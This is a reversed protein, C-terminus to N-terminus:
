SRSSGSCNKYQSRYIMSQSLFGSRFLFGQVNGIGRGVRIGIGFAGGPVPSLPNPGGPTGNNFGQLTGTGLGATFGVTNPARAAAQITGREAAQITARTVGAVTRAAGQVARGTAVTAEAATGLVAPAAAVALPLAVVLASNVPQYDCLHAGCQDRSVPLFGFNPNPDFPGISAPLGIVENAISEPKLTFLPGENYSVQVSGSNDSANAVAANFSQAAAANAFDASSGFYFTTGQGAQLFPVNTNPVQALWGTVIEQLFMGTPDVNAVPNNRAYAYANVSQPDFANAVVPDVSLFTGAGPDYWRAQMYVLGTAAHKRHGAYYARYLNLGTAFYEKGFPTSLVHRVRAGDEDLLVRGTGLPDSLEWFYTPGGGGGSWSVPPVVLSLTVVLAVGSSAPRQALLGFAGRSAAFALLALLAAAGLGALLEPDPLPLIASAATRLTPRFRKFAVREGFAHIEVNATAKAPLSEYVYADSVQATYTLNAELEGAPVVNSNRQRESQSLQPM